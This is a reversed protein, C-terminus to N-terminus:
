GDDLFVVEEMLEQDVCNDGEEYGWKFTELHRM